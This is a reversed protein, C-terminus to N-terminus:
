KKQLINFFQIYKKDPLFNFLFQFPFPSNRRAPLNERSRERAQIGGESGRGWNIGAVCAM